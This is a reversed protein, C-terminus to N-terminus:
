ARRRRSEVMRTGSPPAPLSAPRPSADEKALASRKLLPAYSWARAVLQLADAKDKGESSVARWRGKSLQLRGYLEEARTLQDVRVVEVATDDGRVEYLYGAPEHRLRVTRANRDIVAGEGRAGSTLGARM